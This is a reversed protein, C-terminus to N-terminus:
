RSLSQRLEAVARKAADLSQAKLVAGVRKGAQVFAAMADPAVELIAVDGEKAAVPAAAHLEACRRLAAGAEAPTPYEVVVLWHSPKGGEAYRAFAAPMGAALALGKPGTLGAPLADPTTLEHHFYCASTPERLAAPLAAVVPPLSPEGEPMRALIAKALAVLDDRVAPRNGLSVLHLYHPGSWAWAEGEGSGGGNGLKEAARAGASCDRSYAGFAEPPTQFYWLDANVEMREQKYKAAAVQVFAYTLYPEGAGNIYEFLGKPGVYVRVEGERAWADLKPALVHNPDVGTPKPADPPKEEPAVKATGAPGEVRVAADGAVPCVNECFGCGVCLDEVVYPRDIM